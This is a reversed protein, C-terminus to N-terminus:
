SLTRTSHQVRALSWGGSDSKPPGGELSLFKGIIFKGGMVKYKRGGGGAVM